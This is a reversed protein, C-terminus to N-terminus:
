DDFFLVAKSERGIVGNASRSGRLQQLTRAKTVSQRSINAGYPNSEELVQQTKKHQLQGAQFHLKNDVVKEKIKSVSVRKEFEVMLDREAVEALRNKRSIKEVVIKNKRDSVSSQISGQLEDRMVRELHKAQRERALQLQHDRVEEVQGMAAGLYQQQRKIRDQEEQLAAQEARHAERKQALQKELIASAAMQAALKEEEEKKKAERQKKRAEVGAQTKVERARMIVELRSNLLAQKQSKEILIEERKATEAVIAREREQQQKVKMEMYSMEVLLGIGATLTPDFVVIHEKHVTNLARLQRIRDSKEEEETKLFEERAARAQDLQQRVQKGVEVRAEVVKRSAEQPKTSRVEIISQVVEQNHLHEIEKELEKQRKIVEAQERMLNAVSYNDEKQRLMAEKAEISTQKAQERRMAVAKLKDIGDRERMDQQWMYYEFPDRLEEEYNRLVTADKAQQKRYLADEKVVAAANLRISPVAKSFDPPENYFSSDFALGKVREEEVEKRVAELPKGAVSQHFKFDLSKNYQTTTCLKTKLRAEDKEREIKALNTNNLFRPVPKAELQGSIREPEPLVPPRTKTLRPSIPVTAPKSKPKAIGVEGKAKAEELAAQAAANSVADQDLEMAYRIMSPIHKELRPIITGEIFVLDLVRM